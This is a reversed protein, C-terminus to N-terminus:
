LYRRLWVVEQVIVSDLLNLKWPQCLQILKNREEGHSTVMISYFHINLHQNASM